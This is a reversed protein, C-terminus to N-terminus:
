RSDWTQTNWENDNDERYEMGVKKYRVMIDKTGCVMLIGKLDCM